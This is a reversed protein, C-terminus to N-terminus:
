KWAILSFTKYKNTIPIETVYETKSLYQKINTSKKDTQPKFAPWIDYM